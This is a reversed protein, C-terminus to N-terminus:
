RLVAQIKGISLDVIFDEFDTREELAFHGGFTDEAGIAVIGM